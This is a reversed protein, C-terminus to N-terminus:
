LELVVGMKTAVDKMVTILESLKQNQKVLEVINASRAADDGRLLRMLEISGQTTSIDNVQLAQRSPGQLVANKVADAMEAIAPAVARMQEQAFRNAQEQAQRGNLLGVDRAAGIDRLGDEAERAAREGETLGLDRGRLGARFREDEQRQKERDRADARDAMDAKERAQRGAPSDEIRRAQGRLIDDKERAANARAEEPKTKDDIIEQLEKLREREAITQADPNQEFERRARENEDRVDAARDEARRAAAQAEDRRKEARRVDMEADGARRREGNPGFEGNVGAAAVAANADRRARDANSQAESAVQDALVTSIQKITDAFTRITEAASRYAASQQELASRQRELEAIRAPDEATKLEEIVKSLEQAARDAEARTQSFPILTEDLLAQAAELSKAVKVSGELVSVALANGNSRIQEELQALLSELAAVDERARMIEPNEEFNVVGLPKAAMERREALRQRVVSAQEEATKAAAVDGAAQRRRNEAAEESARTMRGGRLFENARITGQIVRDIEDRGPAPAEAAAKAAAEERRKSAAKQALLAARQGMDTAGELERDIRNQESREKQVEPSLDALRSDRREKQKKVIEEIQRQFDRAEAASKSFMNRGLSNAFSDFAQKLDELLSKQKALADNLAKTQDEATKGGNVFKMIMVASQAAMTAGLAIFLGKTSGVIYAMQSINNSVARIKQDIGGTSSMFDDIAFGLQQFALSAKDAGFRGIDGVSALAGRVDIKQGSANVVKQVEEAAGDLSEKLLNAYKVTGGVESTARKWGAALDDVADAADGTTAGVKILIGQLAAIEAKAKSIKSAEFAQEVSGGFDATAKLKRMEDQMTRLDAASKQLDGLPQFTGKDIKDSSKMLDGASVFNGSNELRTLVDKRVAAAQEELDAALIFKGRDMGKSSKILDDSSVFGGSNELRTLVDRRVTAAQQALADASMFAGKDMGKSSKMLDDASVFGGKMILAFKQAAENRRELVRIQAELRDTESEIQADIRATPMGLSLKRDRRSQLDLVRDAQAAVAAQQEGIGFRAVVAAPLSETARQARQAGSFADFTRPSSFRLSAGRNLSSVMSSAEQLRRVASTVLNVKKALADFEGQSATGTRSITDALREAASQASVMAPLFSAQVEASLRGLNGAAEALPQNIEKTASYLARTRDVAQQLNEASFGSFSLKRSAAAQLARELKQAETYIGRLSTTAKTQASTLSSQMSSAFRQVDKAAGSLKSQFDSTNASVIASIKGLYSM